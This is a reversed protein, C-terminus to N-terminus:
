ERTILETETSTFSDGGLVLQLFFQRRPREYIDYAELADAREANVTTEMRLQPAINLTPLMRDTLEMKDAPLRLETREM